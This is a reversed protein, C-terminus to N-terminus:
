GSCMLCGEPNERSCLLKAEALEADTMTAPTVAADATNEKGSPVAPKFPAPSASKAPVPVGAADNSVRAGLAAQDVTFKIADVAARTRLYYM